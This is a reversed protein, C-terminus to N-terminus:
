EERLVVMPDLRAARRAPWWSATVAVLALLAAAGLLTAPDTPAIHFLLGHLLRTVALAGALGILVGAAAVRLSRRLVESVVRSRAAGLALRIGIERRRQATAYSVVGYVGVSALSLALLGFMTLLVTAFRRQDVSRGYLVTVPELSQIPVNPDAERVAVRIADIVRSTAGPEIRVMLSSWSLWDWRKQAFPLYLAPAPPTDPSTMRTDGVVGVISLWPGGPGVFSIRQGVPDEGHWLRTALQQNVIVVPTAGARDSPDFVRGRRLPIGMTRFYGPSVARLSQPDERGSPNGSPHGERSFSFTTHFGRAPPESTSGAGGVGPIVSVRDLLNQYFAIQREPTAYRSRPIDLGVEVVGRPDYGYDVGALQAASRLLLGAGVLLVLSIAVEGVLLASRLREHPPVMTRSSRLTTQLDPRSLRLAPLLGFLITCLMATAMLFALVGPDIHIQQLGPLMRPAVALLGRLMLAGLVLGLVAGGAALVLSEILLQRVIRGRAAGLSGRIAMEHRRGVARALLVNAVNTCAILLVLGVGAFLVLLLARVNGVADERLPVANVGYGTMFQPYARALSAAIVALEQQARALSLTPRLRGVVAYNHSRRQTRDLAALPLFRWVQVRPSGFRFTAPMVGLVTHPTDDLVLRRGIVASDGGFRTQWFGYDLLILRGDGDEDGPAFRRGLVASTGLVTMADATLNVVQVELADGAATLAMGYPGQWAGLASFAHARDRWDLYNGASVANHDDGQPSVEWVDVLRDSRPYPLARLLVGEVMSFIAANAGLGLALTLVVVASVGPNRRVRRLAYRLDLGLDHPWRLGRADRAEEKFREVGGFAVLAARRAAAPHLGQRQLERAEMELHFRMEGDMRDEARRRERWQRWRAAAWTIPNM